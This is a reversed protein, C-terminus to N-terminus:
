RRPRCETPTTGARRCRRCRASAASRYGRPSAAAEEAEGFPSRIWGEPCSSALRSGLPNSHQGAARCVGAMTFITKPSSQYGREVLSAGCLACTTLECTYVTLRDNYLPHPTKM